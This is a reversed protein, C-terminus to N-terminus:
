EEDERVVTFKVTVPTYGDRVLIQQGKSSMVFTIFGSVIGKPERRAILYIDRGLPYSFDHVTGPDPLVYPKGAERALAVAKIGPEPIQPRALWEQYLYSSGCYGIGGTDRKVARIIAAMSDFHQTSPTLGADKLLSDQLWQYSASNPNGYYVKVPMNKGGLERWNKIKGSFIDRVQAITLSEVPNAQNVIIAIGDRAIRYEKPSFGRQVAAQREADTLPRTSVALITDKSPLADFMMRLGAVSGNGVVQVRAKNYMAMFERAADDMGRWASESGVVVLRGVTPDDATTCTLFLVAGALVIAFQARLRGRYMIM